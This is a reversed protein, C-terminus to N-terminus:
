GVASAETIQLSRPAMIGIRLHSCYQSALMGVVDSGVMSPLTRM